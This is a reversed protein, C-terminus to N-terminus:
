SASSYLALIRKVVHYISKNDYKKIASDRLKRQWGIFRFFFTELSYFKLWGDYFEDLLHFRNYWLNYEELM